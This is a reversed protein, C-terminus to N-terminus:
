PRKKRTRSNEVWHRRLRPKGTSLPETSDSRTAKAPAYLTPLGTRLKRRSRFVDCLTRSGSLEEERIYTNGCNGRFGTCHYYIYRAKKIEATMACGCRGCAVLGAFAHRHKTYKPRNAGVFVDQVAEFLQKSVIPEHVGRYLKGNWLFDGYYLPNRLIRHIESKTMRRGSRPHLLGASFARVRLENLSV